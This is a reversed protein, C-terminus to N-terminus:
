PAARVPATGKERCARCSSMHSLAPSTRSPSPSLSAAAVMAAHREWCRAGRVSASNSSSFRRTTASASTAPARARGSDTPACKRLSAGGARPASADRGTVSGAIVPAAQHQRGGRDVADDGGREVFVGGPAVEGTGREQRRLGDGAGVEDGALVADEAAALHEGGGEAEGVGRDADLQEDLVAGEEAAALREGAHRPRRPRDQ